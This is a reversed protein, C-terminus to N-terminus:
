YAPRRPVVLPRNESAGPAPYLSTEAYQTATPATLSTEGYAQIVPRAQGTTPARSRRTRLAGRSASRDLRALSSGRSMRAGRAPVAAQDVDASPARRRRWLVAVLLLAVLIICTAGLGAILKADASSSSPSGVAEAVGPAATSSLVTFPSTTSSDSTTSSPSMLTVTTTRELPAVTTTTELQTGRTQTTTFQSAVASTWGDASAQGFVFVTQAESSFCSQGTITLMDPSAALAVGFDCFHAPETLTSFGATVSSLNYAFASGAVGTSPSGLVVLDQIAVVVDTASQGEVAQVRRVQWRKSLPNDWGEFELLTTEGGRVTQGSEVYLSGVAIDANGDGDVDACSLSHGTFRSTVGPRYDVPSALDLGGVVGRYARVMGSGNSKSSDNPLGVVLEGFGDNDLDCTAVAAGLM